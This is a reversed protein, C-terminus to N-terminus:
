SETPKTGAPPALVPKDIPAGKKFIHALGRAFYNASEAMGFQWIGNVLLAEASMSPCGSCGGDAWGCAAGRRFRFVRHAAALCGPM